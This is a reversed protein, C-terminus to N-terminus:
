LFKELYKLPEKELVMVQLHVRWAPVDILEETNPNTELGQVLQEGFFAKAFEHNFLFSYHEKYQLKYLPWNDILSEKKYGNKVAKNVTQRLITEDTM